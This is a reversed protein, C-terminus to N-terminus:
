FNENNMYERIKREEWKSTRGLVQLSYMFLGFGWGLLPFWFWYFQPSTSYNLYALFPMVICYATLHGYFGKLEKVKLMAKTYREEKSLEEEM